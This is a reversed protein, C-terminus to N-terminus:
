KIKKVFGALERVADLVKSDTTIKELQLAHNQGVEEIKNSLSSLVKQLEEKNDIDQQQLEEIKKDIALFQENINHYWSGSNEKQDLLIELHHTRELLSQLDERPYRFEQKINDLRKRLYEYFRVTPRLFTLGIALAAAFYGVISVGMSAVFYLGIASVIHLLIALVLSIKAVKQVYELSSDIVTIDKRKSIAADDLVEKAKFHANWPVTTIIMLWIFSFIGVLWDNINGVQVEFFYAIGFGLLVLIAIGIITELVNKM